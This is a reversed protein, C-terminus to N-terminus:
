EVDMEDANNAEGSKGRGKRRAGIIAKVAKLIDQLKAQLQNFVKIEMDNLNLMRGDQNGTAILKLRVTQQTCKGLSLLVKKRSQKYMILLFM